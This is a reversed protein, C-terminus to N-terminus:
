VNCVRYDVVKWINNKSERAVMLRRECIHTSVKGFKPGGKKIARLFKLQWQRGHEL